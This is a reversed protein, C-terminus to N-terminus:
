PLDTEFQRLEKEYFFGGLEKEEEEPRIKYV